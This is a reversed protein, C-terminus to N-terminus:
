SRFHGGLNQGKLFNMVQQASDHTYELCYWIKHCLSVTCHTM